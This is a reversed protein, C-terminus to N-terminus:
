DKKLRDAWGPPPGYSGMITRQQAVYAPDTGWTERLPRDVAALIEDMKEIVQDRNVEGIMEVMLSFIVNLVRDAPLANLDLGVRLCYGDIYHWRATAWTVLHVVADYPTRPGGRLAM